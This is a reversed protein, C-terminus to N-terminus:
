KSANALEVVLEIASGEALLKANGRVSGYPGLGLGSVAEIIGTPDKIFSILSGTQDAAFLSGDLSTFSGTYAWEISGANPRAEDSLLAEAAPIQRRQGGDIWAVSLNVRQGAEPVQRQPKWTPLNPDRVLGILICALNFETGSTSLELLSEYAKKGGPVTALYELPKGLVRVFGPVTFRRAAKDVVIRGIQYRDQGLPKLEGVFPRGAQALALPAQGAMSWGLAALLGHRRNM